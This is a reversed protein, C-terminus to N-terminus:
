GVMAKLSAIKAEYEERKAEASQIAAEADRVRDSAAKEAANLDELRRMNAVADSEVRAKDAALAERQEAMWSDFRNREERMADRMDSVEASSKLMRAVDDKLKLQDLELLARQREIEEAKADLAAAAKESAKREAAASKEAAKFQQLTEKLKTADKAMELVSLVNIAADIEAVSPNITNM